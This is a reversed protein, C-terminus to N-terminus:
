SRGAMRRRAAAPLATLASLAAIILTARMM